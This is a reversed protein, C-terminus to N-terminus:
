FIQDISRSVQIDKSTMTVRGYDVVLRNANVLLKIVFSETIFQIIDLAQSTYRIVDGKTQNQTIERVFRSFSSKPIALCDSNKQQKKIERMAVTGPRFRHKKHVKKIDSESKTKRLPKKKEVVPVEKKKKKINGTCSKLSDTKKTNENIGAGLFKGKISLVCEIDKQKITKRNNYLTVIVLMRVFEQLFSDIFERISNFVLKSIRKVGARRLLRKIAPSTIGNLNDRLVKKTRTVM